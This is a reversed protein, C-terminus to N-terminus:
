HNTWGLQPARGLAPKTAAALSEAERSASIVAAPIGECYPLPNLDVETGHGQPIVADVAGIEEHVIGVRKGMLPARCSYLNM